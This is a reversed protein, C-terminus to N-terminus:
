SPAAGGTGDSAGSPPAEGRHRRAFAFSPAGSLSAVVFVLYVLLGLAIADADSVGLAGFFVVFAAERVGLGSLAFPVNQAIATPPFFALAALLTVEPLGLARAVAWVSVCQMFQFGVGAGLVAVVRGPRHHFALIGLHVAALYRRWGTEGIMRGGGRRHGALVLITVLTLVTFANIAVALATASGLGLLDPDIVMASTSLLPLVIWGTLRELATAAFADAYDGTDRGQRVVRLVDGGFSTPLAKSVFEGALLHSLMRRFPLHLGMTTSVAVWRLTQLLYAVLHVAVAVAVWGLAAATLEPIVSDLSVDPLQWFLVALLALSIGLRPLVRKWDNRPLRRPLEDAGLEALVARREAEEDSM